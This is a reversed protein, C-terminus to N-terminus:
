VSSLTLTLTPPVDPSALWQDMGGTLSQVWALCPARTALSKPPRWALLVDARALTANFHAM